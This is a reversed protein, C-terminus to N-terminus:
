VGSSQARKWVGFVKGVESRVVKTARQRAAKEDLGYDKVLDRQIQEILEGERAAKAHAGREFVEELADFKTLASHFVALAEADSEKAQKPQSTAVEAVQPKTTAVLLLREFVGLLGEPLMEMQKSDVLERLQKVAEALRDPVKGLEEGAHKWKFGM